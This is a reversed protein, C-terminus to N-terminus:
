DRVASAPRVTPLLRAGSLGICGWLARRRAQGGARPMVGTAELRIISEMSLNLPIKLVAVGKRRENEMHEAASDTEIGKVVPRAHHEQAHTM